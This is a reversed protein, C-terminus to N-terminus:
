ANTDMADDAHGIRTRHEIGVNGGVVDLSSNGPPERRSEEGLDCKIAASGNLRIEMVEADESHRLHRGDLNVEDITARAREATDTLDPRDGDHGGDGFRPSLYRFAM